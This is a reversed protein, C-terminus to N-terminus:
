ESGPVEGGDDVIVGGVGQEEIVGGEAVEAEDIEDADTGDDDLDSLDLVAM